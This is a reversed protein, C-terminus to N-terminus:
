IKRMIIHYDRLPTSTMLFVDKVKAGQLALVESVWDPSLAYSKLADHVFEGDSIIVLPPPNEKKPLKLDEPTLAGKEYKQLVSIQGTTEVVAFEVDRIDFVGNQRLAEMLDDISLRLDKLLQQELIGNHIIVIPSGSIFERFKRSKLSINSIIIECAVLVFVPVAGLMLPINPDEIPLSAINSILITIVLESPQLEGLQRKGMLRICFTILAYLIIARILAVFMIIEGCKKFINDALISTNNM